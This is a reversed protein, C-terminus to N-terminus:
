DNKRDAETRMPTLAMIESALFDAAADTLELIAPIRLIKTVGDEDFTEAPTLSEDYSWAKIGAALVTYRDCGRLPDAKKAEKEQEIAAEITKSDQSGVADQLEKQFAPGGMQKFYKVSDVTNLQQARQLHRGALAQITVTHPPDFPVEITKTIRHAFISAM